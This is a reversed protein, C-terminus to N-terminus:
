QKIQSLKIVEALNEELIKNDNAMKRIELGYDKFTVEGSTVDYLAGSLAVEKKAVMEHLITSQEYIENISKAINLQTVSEVLNNKDALKICPQIKDLLQTIHGLEVNDCAAAIAGCNSHGLVVVLKAGVVNCAFELSAIIDENVVNGAVRICFVDGFTVDFITEVPVRSDICALIVAIPHQTQATQKIDVKPNRHIRCDNLFRTNGESLINLVEFPKLQTQADYTTVHIFDIYNHIQYDKKFGILNVSIKKFPAKESKFTNLLEIIEKDIYDAYRADIVLQANQGLSNLEEELAAKNLFTVQKPLVLRQVLGKPYHETILDLRMQSNLKLIYFISAALGIIIGGLINFFVIGLVTAIFPIFRDFGQAYLDKYIKPNTLKYGIFILIAALSSLPIKNLIQPLVLIALLLFIGHFIAALKTKNNSQINVSTRVIVSTIPLAGLLGGLMNGVGQAVLERDKSAYRHKPDLKESATLNLLSEISGVMAIIFGYLYVQYNNYASWNPHSFSNIFNAVNNYTPLNVLQPQTQILHSNYYSFVENLVIGAIVVIIPAPLEKIYKNKSKGVGILIIFSILSILIAGNNLHSKLHMLPAFDLTTSNALLNAKLESLDGSMTFALPIQKIILLIGIASLLGQIVNSPFYNAFFGGRFIGISLQIIGSIFVALLFTDFGGLKQISVVVVAALGAAPGSVSVQSGSLIGVVIGGIIGSLLGSMLPANSALAIGLCLPVAVLFVVISAIFDFKLFKLQYNNTIFNKIANSM